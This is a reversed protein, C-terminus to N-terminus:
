ADLNRVARPDDEPSIFYHSGFDERNTNTLREAGELAAWALREATVLYEGSSRSSRLAAIAGVLQATVDESTTATAFSLADLSEATAEVAEQASAMDNNAIADQFAKAHQTMERALDAPKM